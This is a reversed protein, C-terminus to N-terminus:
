PKSLIDPLLNAITAVSIAGTVKSAKKRWKGDHMEDLLKYGQHTIHDVSFTKDFYPVAQIYHAKQLRDITWLIEEDTYFTKFHNAIEKSSVSQTLHDELYLMVDEVIDSALKM